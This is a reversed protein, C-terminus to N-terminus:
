ESRIVHTYLVAGDEGIIRVTLHGVEAVVEGFNKVGGFSWIPSPWLGFDVPRPRGLTASLPGAILEHLVFGAHPEHRLLEAHHVDAVVVVLNKVGRRKLAALIEDRERAFGTGTNGLGLVSVGTWSDRREPRGTPISLSVSSVIVKWAADSGAVAGVLWDRQTSGLMTKGPGDPMANPSRYQRTDLIFVELVRGWRFRRYLRGPEEPPPAIPFYDLFARRGIPMLPETPGSFDNRVEHDDWIAYVSTQRFAEQVAADARNYRHKAHYTPLTTAAFDSGPVIGPGRCARDAYVTDGVFLFFDPRRKAIARFIPYGVDIRRCFEAAGLDGGWAFTVPQSADAPPATVFAGTASTAGATVRYTYRTAPTLGNLPRKGTFDREAGLALEGARTLEGGAPGLAVEAAGAATGRAWLVASTSTVDGVTVLLADDASAVAVPLLLAVVSTLVGSGVVM